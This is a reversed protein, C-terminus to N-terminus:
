NSGEKIEENTNTTISMTTLDLNEKSTTEQADIKHQHYEGKHSGKAQIQLLTSQLGMTSITFLNLHM